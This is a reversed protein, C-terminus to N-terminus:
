IRRSVHRGAAKPRSHTSVRVQTVPVDAKVAWGGEPPQTNFSQSQIAAEDYDTWGGEPPQTNFSYRIGMAIAISALRRRAATHQFPFLKNPPNGSDIWGGEPPQTNFSVNIRGFNEFRSGAAKPRSHTSVRRIVRNRQRTMGAAKPRSHTSVLDLVSRRATIREWGGEPPQTNFRRRQEIIHHCLALRRRAATHQFM